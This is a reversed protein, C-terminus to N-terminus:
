FNKKIKERGGEEDGGGRFNCIYIYLNYMMMMMMMMLYRMTGGRGGEWFRPCSCTVFNKCMKTALPRRTVNLEGDEM